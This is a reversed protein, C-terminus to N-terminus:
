TSGAPDATRCVATSNQIGCKPLLRLKGYTDGIALDIRGDGDFDAAAFTIRSGQLVDFDLAQGKEPGVHLPRGDELKLLVGPEDFRRGQNHHLYIQGAHTGYLLDRQGDGDLDALQTFMWGDGM